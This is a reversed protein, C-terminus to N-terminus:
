PFRKFYIAEFYYNQTFYKKSTSFDKGEGGEWCLNFLGDFLRDFPFPCGNIHTLTSKYVMSTYTKYTFILGCKRNELCNTPAFHVWKFILLAEPIFTLCMAETNSIFIYKFFLFRFAKFIELMLSSFIWTKISFHAILDSIKAQSTKYVLIIKRKSCLYCMYLVDVYSLHQM